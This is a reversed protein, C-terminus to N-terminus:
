RDAAKRYVFDYHPKWTQGGDTSALSRQRVTGDPRKTLTMRRLVKTGDPRHTEGTFAMADPAPDGVFEGVGGGTDVWSQRWRRLGPDRFNISTGSYGDRQRYREIVACGEASRAITSSAVVEGDSLVDWTGIWFDLQHHEAAECAAHANAAAALGLVVWAFAASGM